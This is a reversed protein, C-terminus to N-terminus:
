LIVTFNVVTFAFATIPLWGCIATHFHFKYVNEFIPELASVAATLESAFLEPNELRWNSPLVWYLILYSESGAALLSATQPIVAVAVAVVL